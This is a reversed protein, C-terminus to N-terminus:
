GAIPRRPLATRAARSPSDDRRMEERGNMPSFCARTPTVLAEDIRQRPKDFGPHARSRNPAGPLIRGLNPDRLFSM